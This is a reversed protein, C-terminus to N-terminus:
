VPPMPLRSLPPAPAAPGTLISRQARGETLLAPGTVVDTAFQGSPRLTSNIVMAPAPCWHGPWGPGFGAIARASCSSRGDVASSAVSVMQRKKLACGLGIPVAFLLHPTGAGLRSRLKREVTAQRSTPGLPDRHGCPM